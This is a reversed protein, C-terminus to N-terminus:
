SRKAAFAVCKINQAKIGGKKMVVAIFNYVPAKNCKKIDKVSGNVLDCNV